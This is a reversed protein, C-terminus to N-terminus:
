EKNMVDYGKIEAIIKQVNKRAKKVPIQIIFKKLQKDNLKICVKHFNMYFPNVGHFLLYWFNLMFISKICSIIKEIVMFPFMFIMELFDSKFYNTFEGVILTIVSTGLYMTLVGLLFIKM